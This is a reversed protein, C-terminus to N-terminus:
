FRLFSLTPTSAEGGALSVGFASSDVLTAENNVMVLLVHGERDITAAGPGPYFRKLSSISSQSSTARTRFEKRGSNNTVNVPTSWGNGDSISLYTEGDGKEGTDNMQMVAIMRGGPAQWAQFYDARGTVAKAARIVVPEEDRDILYDRFGPQEGETFRVIIHRQGGADVLLRPPNSWVQYPEGPLEIAPKQKGGEIVHIRTNRESASRDRVTAIFHPGAADVYGRLADFDDGRLQWGEGTIKTFFVERVTGPDTGNLTAGQVLGNGVAALHQRYGTGPSMVEPHFKDPTTNWIVHVQGKSDTAAFWSLSGNDQSEPSGPPHVPLPKANWKGGELVRYVLNQHSTGSADLGAGFGEKLGTRWIVYVRGSVDSHIDCDGVQWGPMVESLNKTDSWTKGQDRSSRHYVALAYTTRHKEVFAVHITGDPAVTIRPSHIESDHQSLKVGDVPKGDKQAVSMAGKADKRVIASQALPIFPARAENRAAAPPAAPAPAIEFGPLEPPKAPAPAKGVLAAVTAPPLSNALKLSTLFAVAQAGYQQWMEQSTTQFAALDFRGGSHGAIYYHYTHLEATESQMRRTLVPFGETATKAEAGSDAEVKITGKAKQDAAVAAEFQAAFDAGAKAGPFLTVTCFDGPPLDVAFILAGNKETRKWTTADPTKYLWNGFRADPKPKEPAEAAHTVAASCWASVALLRIVLWRFRKM